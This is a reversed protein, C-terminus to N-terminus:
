THCVNSAIGPVLRRQNGREGGDQSPRDIHELAHRHQPRKAGRLQDHRPLVVQRRAATKPRVLWRTIVIL